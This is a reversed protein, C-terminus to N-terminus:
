RRDRVSVKRSQRTATAIRGNANGTNFVSAVAMGSGARQRRRWWGLLGCCAVLFGPLGAGVVPGPVSVDSVVLASGAPLGFFQSVDQWDGTEPLTMVVNLEPTSAGPGFALFPGICSPLCLLTSFITDSIGGGEIAPESLQVATLLPVPIDSYPALIVENEENENGENATFLVGRIGNWLADSTGIPLETVPPPPIPDASGPTISWWVGCSLVARFITKKLAKSPILAM